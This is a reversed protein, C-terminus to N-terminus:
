APLVVLAKVAAMIERSMSEPLKEPRPQRVGSADSIRSSKTRM